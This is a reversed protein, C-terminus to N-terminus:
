KLSYKQLCDNRANTRRREQDAVVDKPLACGSKARHAKCAGDWLATYDGDVKTLCTDLADQRVTLDAEIQQRAQTEMAAKERDQAPVTVLLHWAFAIAGVVVTLGIGLLWWNRTFWASTDQITAAVRPRAAKLEAEQRREALMKETRPDV